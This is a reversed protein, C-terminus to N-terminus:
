KATGKKITEELHKIAGVQKEGNAFLLQNTKDTAEKIGDMKALQVRTSDALTSAVSKQQALSEQTLVAIQSVSNTQATVSERVTRMTLLHQAFFEEVMPKMWKVLLKACFWIVFFLVLVLAILIAISLGFTDATEKFAKEAEHVQAFTM